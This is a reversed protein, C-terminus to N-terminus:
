PCTMLLGRGPGVSGELVKPGALPEELVLLASRASRCGQWRERDTSLGWCGVGFRSGVGRLPDDWNWWALETLSRTRLNVDSEGTTALSWSPGDLAARVESVGVLSGPEERMLVVGAEEELLEEERPGLSM